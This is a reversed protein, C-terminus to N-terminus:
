ASERTAATIKYAYVHRANNDGGGPGGKCGKSLFHQEITRAVNDTGADRNIWWGNERSVNHEEFLRRAPNETIGCYWTNHPGGEKNIHSDIESVIQQASM